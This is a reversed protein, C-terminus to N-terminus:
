RFADRIMILRDPPGAALLVVWTTGLAALERGFGALEDATGTWSPPQLGKASRESALSAVDDADSGVLAIGAWTPPVERNGALEKLLAARAAFAELDLGWGNWAEAARAATRVAGESVGGVWVEARGPPVLPGDMAPVLEGGAWGRGEFLARCALATEEVLAFREASPPFPFGFAEHEGSSAADGAGLALVVGSSMTALSAAQKALAGAPRLGARAVLTGVRLRPHRAAVAALLAFPELSPRDRGTPPFLHDPAFVGDFGLEEASAAISLARSPDTTFAPLVLGLRM